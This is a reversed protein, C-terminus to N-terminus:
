LSLLRGLVDQRVRRSCAKDALDLVCVPNVEGASRCRWGIFPLVVAIVVRRRFSLRDLDLISDVVLPM